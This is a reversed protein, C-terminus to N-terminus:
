AGSLTWLEGSVTRRVNGLVNRLAPGTVRILSGFKRFNTLMQSMPLAHQEEPFGDRGDLGCALEGAVDNAFRPLRSVRHISRWTFGWDGTHTKMVAFAWMEGLSM